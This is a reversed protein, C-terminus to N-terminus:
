ENMLLKLTKFAGGRKKKKKKLEEQLVNCKKYFERERERERERKDKKEKKFCLASRLQCATPVGLTLSLPWPGQLVKVQVGTPKFGSGKGPGLTGSL